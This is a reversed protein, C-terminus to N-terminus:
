KEIVVFDGEELAYIPLTNDGYVALENYAAQWDIPGRPDAAGFDSQYHPLFKLALINLGDMCQRWDCTWFHRALINSGASSAVVVKNEWLRPLDYQRLWYALLHDDGGAILVVDNNKVQEVFKDPMALSLQLHINDDVSGFFSSKYGDFKKEWDERKEAFFCCLIRPEDSLGKIMESLFLAAKEPHKSTAGSNLIYKTM